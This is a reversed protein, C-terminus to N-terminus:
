RWPVQRWDVEKQGPKSEGTYMQQYEPNFFRVDTGDPEIRAVQMGAKTLTALVLFAVFWVVLAFGGGYLLYDPDGRSDWYWWLFALGGIALAGVAAVVGRLRIDWRCRGCLPVSVAASQVQMRNNGVYKMDQATVRVTGRPDPRLCRCCFNPFRTYALM